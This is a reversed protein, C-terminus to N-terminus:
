NYGGSLQTCHRPSVLLRPPDRDKGTRGLRDSRGGGPLTAPARRPEAAQTLAAAGVLKHDQAAALSTPTAAPIWCRREWIAKM